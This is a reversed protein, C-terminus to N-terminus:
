ASVGYTKAPRKVRQWETEHETVFHSVDDKAVLLCLIQHGTTVTVSNGGLGYRIQQGLTPVVTYGLSRNIQIAGRSTSQEHTRRDDVISKTAL